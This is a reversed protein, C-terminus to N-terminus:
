NKAYMFIATNRNCQTSFISDGVRFSGSIKDKARSDAQVTKWGAGVGEALAM